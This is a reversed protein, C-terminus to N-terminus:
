VYGQLIPYGGNKTELYLLKVIDVQVNHMVINIVVCGSSLINELSITNTENLPIYVIM